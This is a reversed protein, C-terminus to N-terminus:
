CQDGLSLALTQESVRPRLMGEMAGAFRLSLPDGLLDVYAKFGCFRRLFQWLFIVFNFSLITVTNRLDLDLQADM